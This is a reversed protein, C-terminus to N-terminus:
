QLLVNFSGGQKFVTPLVLLSCGKVDFELVPIFHSLQQGVDVSGFHVQRHSNSAVGYVSVDYLYM